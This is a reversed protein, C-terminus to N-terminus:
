SNPLRLRLSLTSNSDDVTAVCGQCGATEDKSGIVFFERSRAQRWASRWQDLSEYGNDKLHYQSMFLKNGGFCIRVTHRTQEKQLAELKHTLNNLLRKKQHLRNSNPAKKTLTKITKQTKAIRTKTESIHVPVLRKISAIKGKLTIAIANYQRATLHFKRMIIPKLRTFDNGSSVAAFLHREARGYLEAYASLLTEDEPSLTLRTQYTFTPTDTM